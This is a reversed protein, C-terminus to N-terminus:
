LGGRRAVENSTEVCKPPGCRIVVDPESTAGPKTKRHIAWTSSSIWSVIGGVLGRGSTPLLHDTSPGCEAVAAFIGRSGKPACSDLSLLHSTRVFSLLNRSIQGPFAERLFMPLFGTVYVLSVQSQRPCWLSQVVPVPSATFTGSV